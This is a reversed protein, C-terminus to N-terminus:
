YMFNLGFTSRISRLVSLNLKRYVDSSRHKNHKVFIDSVRYILSGYFSYYTQM